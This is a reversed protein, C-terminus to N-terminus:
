SEMKAAVMLGMSPPARIVSSELPGAMTRVPGLVSGMRVLPVVLSVVLSLSVTWVGVLVGSSSWEWVLVL